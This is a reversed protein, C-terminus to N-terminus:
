RAMDLDNELEDLTWRKSPKELRQLSLYTDELEELHSIIAERVYFTKTRGTKCALEELRQLIDTELRISLSM